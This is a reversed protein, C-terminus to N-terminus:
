KSMLGVHDCNSKLIKLDLCFRLMIRTQSFYLYQYNHAWKFNSLSCCIKIIKNKHDHAFILDEANLTSHM